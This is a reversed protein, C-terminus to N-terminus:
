KGPLLGNSGKAAEIPVMAEGPPIVPGWTVGLFHTILTEIDEMTKEKLPPTTLPHDSKYSGAPMNDVCQSIIRLSQRMEEMRVLSRDYCDGNKGVPIEFEFNEYGSYPRKKRYDWAVGTSRLGAGTVGWEIAEAATYLELGLPEKRSYGTKSPSRKM